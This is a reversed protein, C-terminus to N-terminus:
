PGRGVPRWSSGDWWYRGDPSVHAGAPAVPAPRRRWPGAVLILVLASILVVGVIVLTGVILLGNYAVTRTGASGNSTFLAPAARYETQAQRVALASLDNTHSGAHIVFMLNGKYFEVRYEHGSGDTYALVVGFSSAPDLGLGSLESVYYKSTENQFRFNGYWSSAGIETKFQFVLEFLYDGTGRQKWRDAYGSVFGQSNLDAEVTSPTGNVQTLYEGYSTATFPGVLINPGPNYEVWDASPPPALLSELDTAALANLAGPM